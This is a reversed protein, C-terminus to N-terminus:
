AHRCYIPMSGAHNAELNETVYNWFSKKHLQHWFHLAPHEDWRAWNVVAYDSPEGELPALAVSNDLGTEVAYWGALYDWLQLMVDPNEAAFHNFLYLGSRATDDLPVDAIRRVNRAAMVFVDDANSHLADMLAEFAPANRAELTSAPSTTQILLMVDYNAVRLSPGRERLYGSFRATPPEVIARFVTAKTVADVRELVRALEKLRVLL